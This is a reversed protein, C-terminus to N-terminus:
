LTSGKEKLNIQWGRGSETETNARAETGAIQWCPRNVKM